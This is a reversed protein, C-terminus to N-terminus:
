LPPSCFGYLRGGGPIPPSRIAWPLARQTNTLTERCAESEIDNQTIAPAVWDAASLTGLLIPGGTPFLYRRSAVLRPRAGLMGFYRAPSELSGGLFACFASFAERRQWPMQTHSTQPPIHAKHAKLAKHTSTHAKLAM